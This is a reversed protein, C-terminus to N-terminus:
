RDVKLATAQTWPARLLAEPEISGFHRRRFAAREGPKALSAANASFPRTLRWDRYPNSIRAVVGCRVRIAHRREDVARKCRPKESQEVTM